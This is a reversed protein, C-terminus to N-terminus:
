FLFGSKLLIRAWSEEMFALKEANRAIPVHEVFTNERLEVLIKRLLFGSPLGCRACACIHAFRAIIAEELERSFTPIVGGQLARALQPIRDYYQTHGLERLQKRLFLFVHEGGRWVDFRERVDRVVNDPVRAQLNALYARFNAIRRADGM